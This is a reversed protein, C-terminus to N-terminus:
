YYLNVANAATAIKYYPLLFARKGLWNVVIFVNNFGKKDTLFSKFDFSIYQWYRKSIPLPHLLSPTKDRPIYTRRCM